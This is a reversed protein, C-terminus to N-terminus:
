SGVNTRFNQVRRFIRDITDRGEPDYWLAGSWRRLGTLQRKALQRTAARVRRGCDDVDGHGDLFAAVQRYGVARMAPLDRSIGPRALLRATEGIVGCALMEQWRRAINRHLIHRDAPTLVLTLSRALRDRRPGHMLRSPRRGTLAHIELARQIRQPDGSRIRRASDPDIDALRRHLAPWGQEAAEGEIRTRIEPDAAPLPDLGYRLARLYLVTGGVLVPLRGAAAARHMEAAADRAFDAATYPKEPDRIDVLAHPFRTLTERGPKASGVDLGRYVQASDASILAVPFRRALELAVVTKGAATPGAIVLAPPLLSNGASM